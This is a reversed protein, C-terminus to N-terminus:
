CAYFETIYEELVPRPRSAGRPWIKSAKAEHTTAKAMTKFTYAKAKLNQGQSCWQSIWIEFHYISRRLSVTM